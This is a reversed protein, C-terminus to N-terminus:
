SGSIRKNKQSGFIADTQYEYIKRVVSIQFGSNRRKDQDGLIKDTM